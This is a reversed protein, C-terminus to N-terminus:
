KVSYHRVFCSDLPANGWVVSIIKDCFEDGAHFPDRFRSKDVTWRNEFNFDFTEGFHRLDDIFQQNAPELHYQKTLEQIDSHTPLVVFVLEIKNALCYESIRRLEDRYIGPTRYNSFYRTGTEIIEHRWFQERDVNPREVERLSPNSPALIIRWLAEFCNRNTLYLVPDTVTAIAGGVRDRVNSQSYVELNIGIFVRRLKMRQSVWRFTSIAEALTGAGYGFNFYREGTVKGVAQADINAIRSDGLLINPIPDDRFRLIKWLAYNLRSSIAEKTEPSVLKTKGFYDFPDVLIVLAFYIGFPLLL